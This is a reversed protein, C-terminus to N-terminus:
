ERLTESRTIIGAYARGAWRRSRRFSASIASHVSVDGSLRASGPSSRDRPMMVEPMENVCARSAAGEAPTSFSPV